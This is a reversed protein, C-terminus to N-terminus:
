KQRVKKNRHAATRSAGVEEDDANSREIMLGLHDLRGQALKLLSANSACVAEANFIAPQLNQAAKGLRMAWEIRCALDQGKQVTGSTELASQALRLRQKNALLSLHERQTAALAIRARDLDLAYKRQIRKLRQSRSTM